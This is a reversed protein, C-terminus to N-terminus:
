NWPSSNELNGNQWMLTDKVLTPLRLSLAFHLLQSNQSYIISSESNLVDVRILGYPILKTLACRPEHPGQWLMGLLQSNSHNMMLVIYTNLSEEEFLWIYVNEM